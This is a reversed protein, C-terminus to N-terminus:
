LAQKARRSIFVASQKVTRRVGDLQLELELDMQSGSQGATQCNSQPGPRWSLKVTEVKCSRCSRLAFHSIRFAFFGWCGVGRAPSLCPRICLPAVDLFCFDAYLSILVQVKPLGLFTEVPLLWSSRCSCSYGLRIGIRRLLYIM